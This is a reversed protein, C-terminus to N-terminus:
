SRVVVSTKASDTAAAATPALLQAASEELARLTAHTTYPVGVARLLAAALRSPMQEGLLTLHPVAAFTCDAATSHANFPHSDLHADALGSRRLHERTPALSVVVMRALWLGRSGLEAHLRARQAVSADAGDPEPAMPYSVLLLATRRTHRLAGAAVEVTEPSLKAPNGTLALLAVGRPLGEDHRSPLPPPLPPPQASGGPVTLLGAELADAALQNVQYHRPLLVLREAFAGATALQPPAACADSILYHHHGGATAPHALFSVLLTAGGRGSGGGDGGGSGGGGDGNHHGGLLAAAVLPANRAKPEEGKLFNADLLIHAAGAAGAAAAAAGDGLASADVFSECIQRARERLRSVVRPPRGLSLCSVQVTTRDHHALAGLLLRLTIHERWDAMAYTIRLRERRGLQAGGSPLLPSPPLHMHNSTGTIMTTAAALIRRSTQAYVQHVAAGAAGAPFPYYLMHLPSLGSIRWGHAGALKRLAHFLAERDRWDCAEIADNFVSPLAGVWAPQMAALRRYTSAQPGDFNDLRTLSAFRDAADGLAPALRHEAGHSMVRSALQHSVIPDAPWLQAAARLLGVGEAATPVLAGLTAYGLASAPSLVVARRAADIAVELPAGAELLDIAQSFSMKLKM